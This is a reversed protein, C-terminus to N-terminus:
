KWLDWKTRGNLESKKENQMHSQIIGIRISSKIQKTPISSFIRPRLFFNADHAPCLSDLCLGMLNDCMCIFRYSQKTQFQLEIDIHISWTCNETPRRECNRATWTDFPATFLTLARVNSRGMSNSRMTPPTTTREGNHNTHRTISKHRIPASMKTHIRANSRGNSRYQSGRDMRVYQWISHFLISVFLNPPM